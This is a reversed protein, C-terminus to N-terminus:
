PLAIGTRAELAEILAEQFDPDGAAVHVPETRKHKWYGGTRPKIEDAPATALWEQTCHGETLDDPAQEGGMRTPVWGPCLSHVMVEPWRFALYSALATVGLKSDDYNAEHTGCSRTSRM